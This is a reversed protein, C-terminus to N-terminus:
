VFHFRAGSVGVLAARFNDGAGAMKPACRAAVGRVVKGRGSGVACVERRKSVGSAADLKELVCREVGSLSKGGCRQCRAIAPVAAYNTKELGGGVGAGIAIITNKSPMPVCLTASIFPLDFGPLCACDYTTNDSLSGSCM